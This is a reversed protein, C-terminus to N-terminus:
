KKCGTSTWRLVREFAVSDYLTTQTKRKNSKTFFRKCCLVISESSSLFSISVHGCFNELTRRTCHLFNTNDSVQEQCIYSTCVCYHYQWVCLHLILSTFEVRKFQRRHNSKSINRGCLAFTSAAMWSDQPRPHLACSSLSACINDSIFIIWDHWFLSKKVCGTRSAAVALRPPVLYTDSEKM